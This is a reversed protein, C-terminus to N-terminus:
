GSLQLRGFAYLIYLVALSVLAFKTQATTRAILVSRVTPEGRLQHLLAANEVANLVGALLAGVAIVRGSVMLWAMGARGTAAGISSAAVFLLATSLVIWVYEIKLSAAAARQGAPGWRTFIRHVERIDEALEYAVLRPGGSRTMDRGVRAMVISVLITGAALPLIYRWPHDLM